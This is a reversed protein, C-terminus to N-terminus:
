LGLEKKLKELDMVIVDSVYNDILEDIKERVIKKHLYLTLDICARCFHEKLEHQYKKNERHQKWVEEEFIM